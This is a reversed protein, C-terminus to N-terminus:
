TAAMTYWCGSKSQLLFCLLRFSCVLSCVNIVQIADGLQLMPLMLKPSLEMHGGSYMCTALLELHATEVPCPMTVEFVGRERPHQTGM